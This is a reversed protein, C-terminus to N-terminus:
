NTLDSEMLKLFIKGSYIFNRYFFRRKKYSKKYIADTSVDKKHYIEIDPSYLTKLKDRKCIYFLIAEESYMHTEPYLGDYQKIYEPSFILCSGSLKVNEQESFYDISHNDELTQIYPKPFIMKKLRELIKDLLLYNLYLMMRYHKIKKQLITKNPITVPKPNQPSGDDASRINPGLVYFKNETYIKEILTIFENQLIYTDNNLLVIFEASLNYKAYIYGVNNGKAYGLNSSNMLIIVNNKDKYYDKLLIGSNNPSANDVIVISFDSYKVNKLISDVCEITDEYTYYHLVVFSFKYMM